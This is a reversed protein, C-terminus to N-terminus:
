APNRIAGGRDHCLRDLANDIAELTKIHPQIKREYEILRIAKEKDGFCASVLERMLKKQVVIRDNPTMTGSSIKTPTSGFWQSAEGYFLQGIFLAFFAIDLYPRYGNFDTLYGDTGTVKFILVIIGVVALVYRATNSAKWIGYGLFFIAAGIFIGLLPKANEHAHVGSKTTLFLLILQTYLFLVSWKIPAPLRKKQM